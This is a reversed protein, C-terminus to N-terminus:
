ESGYSDGILLCYYRNSTSHRGDQRLFVVNINKSSVYFMNSKYGDM